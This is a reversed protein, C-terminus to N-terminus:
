LLSGIQQLLLSPMTFGWHRILLPPPMHPLPQAHPQPCAIRATLWPVPSPSTMSRSAGLSYLGTLALATLLAPPATREDIILGPMLDLLAAPCCSGHWNLGYAPHPRSPSMCWPVIM